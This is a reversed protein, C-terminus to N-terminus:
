LSKSVSFVVRADANENASGDIDTDYYTVGWEVGYAEKALGVSYDTYSDDGSGDFTIDMDDADNLGVSLSLSIDYPLDFGYGLNYYMFSEGGDGLYEPSHVVTVDLGYASLSAVYEQYNLASQEGIYVFQIFSFDLSIDESVDFGYGVYVDTELQEDGGFDVNSSWVGAYFGAGLDADFGGNLSLEENTQSQGRFVYDSAIGINGSIEFASAAGAGTIMAATTAALLLKKM